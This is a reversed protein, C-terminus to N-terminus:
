KVTLTYKPTKNLPCFYEYEGKELKTANSTEKAGTAVAKTVYATKIHNEPKSADAGKKVLVFGVDTGVANNSVEFVYTGASLTLAEQTFKGKTQELSVTKLDKMMKDGKEMTKEMKDEMKKEMKDQAQASMSVGMALVLVAIIKKM